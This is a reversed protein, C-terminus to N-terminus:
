QSKKIDLKLDSMILALVEFTEDYFEHAEETMADRYFRLYEEGIGNIYADYLRTTTPMGKSYHLKVYQASEWMKKACSCDIRKQDNTILGHESIPKDLQKNFNAIKEAYKSLTDS